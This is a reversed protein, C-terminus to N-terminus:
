SKLRPDLADRLADGVLNFSMVTLFIALGPFTAYWWARRLHPQAEYLMNGWTATPPQVGIGLYSLTAEVLIANAVGLTASVIIPAMANPLIHRFVIRGDKVGLARAAETFDRERLSLFEGRVLRAVGPWSTFGIVFMINFISPGILSVVTVILLIVPFCIVMEAMRMLANDIFGGYYGAVAGVVTGLTASLGVSVFGISLSIRSGYIIRSLIDRGYLDTGLRNEPSPPKFRSLLHTQTHSHPAIMPAFIAVAYLILMLTLGIVALKNKRFRRWFIVLPGETRLRVGSAQTASVTGRDM